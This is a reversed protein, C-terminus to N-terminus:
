APSSGGAMPLRGRKVAFGPTVGHLDVRLGWGGPARSEGIMFVGGALGAGFDEAEGAFLFGGWGCRWRWEEEGVAEGLGVEADAVLCLRAGLM